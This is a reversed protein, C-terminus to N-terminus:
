NECISVFFECVFTPMVVVRGIKDIRVFQFLHKEYLTAMPVVCRMAIFYFFM